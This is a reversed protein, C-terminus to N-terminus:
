NYIGKLQIYVYNNICVAKRATLRLRVTLHTVILGDIIVSKNEALYLSPGGFCGNVALKSHKKHINKKQRRYDNRCEIRITNNKM